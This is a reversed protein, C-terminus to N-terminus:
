DITELISKTEKWSNVDYSVWCRHSLTHDNGGKHCSDGFFILSDRRNVIQNEGKFEDAVQSKDKGKPYIDISIQGGITFDLDQHKKKLQKVIYLREEMVSDWDAYVNRKVQDCDRGVTSINVMGVRHEINGDATGYWISDRMLNIIDKELDKPLEWHSEKILKDKKYLQNGCNQYSGDVQMYLSTGVQEITKERDSGTVFFVENSFMQQVSVWHVFFERFEDVMPQRPPTLTGDVDFLFIM